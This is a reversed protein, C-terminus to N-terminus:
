FILLINSFLVFIMKVIDNNQKNNLFVFLWFGRASIFLIFLSVGLFNVKLRIFTLIQKVIFISLHMAFSNTTVMESEISKVLEDVIIVAIFVTYIIYIISIM